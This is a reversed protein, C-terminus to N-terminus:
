RRKAKAVRVGPEWRIMTFVIPESINGLKDTAVISIRNRGLALPVDFSWNRDGKARRPGRVARKRKKAGRAEGLPTVTYEVSAIGTDDIARGAIRAVRAQTVQERRTRPKTLRLWPIGPRTDAVYIGAEGDTTEARFVFQHLNNFTGPGAFDVFALEKPGAPSDLTIGSVAILVPPGDQRKIWIGDRYTENPYEIIAGFVVDGTENIVTRGFHRFRVGSPATPVPDGARVIPVLSGPRGAFVAETFHNEDSAKASFAVLGNSAISPEDSLREFVGLGAPAAAGEAAVVKLAGPTGAYIVGQQVPTGSPSAAVVVKLAVEGSENMDMGHGPSEEYRFIRRVVTGSPFGPAAEDTSLRATLNEPAGWLLVERDEYLGGRESDDVIAKIGLRNGARFAPVGYDLVTLGTGAYTDELWIGESRSEPGYTTASYALLGDRSVSLPGFFSFKEDGDATDGSLVVATTIGDAVATHKFIGVHENSLWSVFAVTGDEGIRPLDFVAFKGGRPAQEGSFAATQYTAGQSFVSACPLLSLAVAAAISFTQRVM